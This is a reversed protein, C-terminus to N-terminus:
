FNLKINTRQISSKSFLMSIDIYAMNTKIGVRYSLNIAPIKASYIVNAKRGYINQEKNNLNNFHQTLWEEGSETKSACCDLLASSWTEFM